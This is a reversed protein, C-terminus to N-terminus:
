LISRSYAQILSAYKLLTVYGVEYYLTVKRNCLFQVSKNSVISNFSKCHIFNCRGSSKSSKISSFYEYNSYLVRVRYKVPYLDVTRVRKPVYKYLLEFGITDLTQAKEKNEIVEMKQLSYYENCFSQM